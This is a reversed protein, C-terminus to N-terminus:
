GHPRAGSALANEHASLYEAAAREANEADWVGRIVAVGHAGHRLLLPLHTPVIGGIAITPLGCAAVNELFGLGRGPDGAHSLTDFVHGAVVWDAGETAAISADEPSHVSAGVRLEASLARVDGVGISRSTLQVGTAGAALAVDARDNVLLWCGTAQAVAALETALAYQKAGPTRPARLHLAGRGALRAMIAAATAAFGARAIVDDTTVVHVFPVTIRGNGGRGTM